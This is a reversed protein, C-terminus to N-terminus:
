VRAAKARPVTETVDGVGGPCSLDAFWGTGFYLGRTEYGGERLVRKSPIYGAVEHCYAAVWLRLPGLAEELRFVYDVVVEDPLAVLTLDNGFQWAAVPARYTAPLTAGADSVRGM